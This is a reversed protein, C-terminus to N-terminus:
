ERKSKSLAKKRQALMYRYMHPSGPVYIGLSVIAAYFYDFSSNWTNPMRICYKESAKIFPLVIYILGVESSIGTPYLVLFTSYRLWLLWSPAFGFAEKFGFFLYRIIETISWSILLSSVLVHTRTEPFSWLIGWVLFLRSSIQPLTATIPSRVLGVLGHLIELVAATQALILPKEAASYVHEHGSEKLTKLVLYLVQVWGFFVTWNYLTLYLRRLLSLFGAM